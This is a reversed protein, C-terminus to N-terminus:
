HFIKLPIHATLLSGTKFGPEWAGAQCFLKPLKLTNSTIHSSGWASSPNFNANGLLFSPFSAPFSCDVEGGILPWLAKGSM